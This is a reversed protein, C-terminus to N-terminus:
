TQARRSVSPPELLFLGCGFVASREEEHETELQVFGKSYIGLSFSFLSKQSEKTKLLKIKM